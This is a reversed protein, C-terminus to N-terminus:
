EGRFPFSVQLGNEDGPEPLRGEPGASALAARVGQRTPLRRLLFARGWPDPPIWLDPFLDHIRAQPVPDLGAPPTGPGLMPFPWHSTARDASEMELMAALHVLTDHAQQIRTQDMEHAKTGLIVWVM